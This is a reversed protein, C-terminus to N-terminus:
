PKLNNALHFHFSFELYLSLPLPLPHLSMLSTEWLVRRGRPRQGASGTGLTHAAERIEGRVRSRLKRGLQLVHVPVLLVHVVEPCTALPSVHTASAQQKM